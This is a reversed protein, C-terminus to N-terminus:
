TRQVITKMAHNHHDCHKKRPLGLIKLMEWPHPWTLPSWNFFIEAYCKCVNCSLRDQEKCDNYQKLHWSIVIMIFSRSEHLMMPQLLCFNSKTILSFFEGGRLARRQWHSSLSILCIQELNLSIARYSSLPTVDPRGDLGEMMRWAKDLEKVYVCEFSHLTCSNQSPRMKSWKQHLGSIREYTM